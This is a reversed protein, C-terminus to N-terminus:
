IGTNEGPPKESLAARTDVQDEYALEVRVYVKRDGARFYAGLYPPFTRARLINLLERATYQRDLDIEDIREVDRLRHSTGAASSQCLPKVRGARLAPWQQRFLAVSVRELKRYLSKGTDVWEVDVAQQAIIDGTDVGEDIYHLTAGAPTGEVISWINPNAGRNFPLLAPHLNICGAPLLQLIEKRLIYGFLASVGIDAHLMAIRQIVEPERLRSGDFTADEPVEAAAVINDGFKRREEPHLVLGVITDGHERVCHAIDAAIRNNGFFLVRM